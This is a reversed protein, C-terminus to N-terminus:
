ALPNAGGGFRNPVKTNQRLSYMDNPHESVLEDEGKTFTSNAGHAKESLSQNLRDYETRQPQVPSRQIANISLGESDSIDTVRNIQNNYISMPFPQQKLGRPSRLQYQPECEAEDVFEIIMQLSMDKEFHLRFEKRLDEMQSALAPELFFRVTRCAQKEAKEKARHEDYGPDELKAAEYLLSTYSLMVNSIPQDPTRVLNTMAAKLKRTLHHFSVSNLIMELVHMADKRAFVAGSLMPLYSHVFRLLM